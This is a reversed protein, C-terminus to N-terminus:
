PLEGADGVIFVALPERRGRVAVAEGRWATLDVGAESAVEASVVLQAGFEKSTSELRSATNVTDGIATVSVATAYGMEGVIAPGIHIGMGIRLPAPLDSELLRNLARLAEAMGKAAALAQAAGAAPTTDVGFLAMIGDGIFKDVRGGAQEIAEGMSRFYRNLVFVVDYPLKAEAIGTFGRIDAFLVAITREEGQMAAAARLGEAPGANPPLLPTVSIGASPRLQCALRVDPPVGIRDLVRREEPSPPPLAEHGEDVRVRCTSCRSRGGCVSAHAIGNARSAELVSTGPAIRVERGGPYRVRVRHRRSELRHRVERAALVLALVAALGVLTWREVTLLIALDELAPADVEALLAERWGPEDNLAAVTRGAFVFGLLSFVPLLLAAAFLYPRVRAYWSKLRLWYHLGICAHGWVIVTAAAQRLAVAPDHVWLALLVYAYTDDTGFMRHNAATGLVHIVLLPPIAIGLLLQVAEPGPMRWGRRRYIAHYALGLHVAMCAVLIPGAPTGRWFGVFVERGAELVELSVLGLAHNVLHTAVFFSIM